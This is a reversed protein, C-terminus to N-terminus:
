ILNYVFGSGFNSTSMKKHYKGVKEEVSRAVSSSGVGFTFDSPGRGM